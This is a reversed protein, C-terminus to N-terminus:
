KSSENVDGKHEIEQEKIGEAIWQTLPDPRIGKKVLFEHIIELAEEKTM